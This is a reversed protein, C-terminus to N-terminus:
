WNHIFDFMDETLVRGQLDSQFRTAWVFERRYYGSNDWRSLLDPICNDVGPLHVARVEFEGVAALFCVERLCQQMFVDRSRGTNLVTVSAENDCYVCVRKGKFRNGWLKLSVVITLLELANIHLQQSSIAGPFTSHYFEPACWSGCGTLCADSALFEDPASWEKLCM